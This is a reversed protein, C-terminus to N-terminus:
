YRGEVWSFNVLWCWKRRKRKCFILVFIVFLVFFDICMLTVAMFQVSSTDTNNPLPFQARYVNSIQMRSHHEQIIRWVHRMITAQKGQYVESIIGIMVPSSTYDMSMFQKLVSPKKRAGAFHQSTNTITVHAAIALDSLWTYTNRVTESTKQLKNLVAPTIVYAENSCFAHKPYTISSAESESPIEANFSRFNCLVLSNSVPLDLHTKLFPVLKYIDVVINDDAVMVFKAQPCLKHVWHSALSTKLTLNNHDLYEKSDHLLDGHDVLEQEHKSDMTTLLFLVHVFSGHFNKRAAWTDRIAMRRDFHALVTHIVVFLLVETHQVCIIPQNNGIIDLDLSKNSSLAM